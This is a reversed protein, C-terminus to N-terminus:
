QNAGSHKEETKLQNIKEKLEAIELEKMRITLKPDVEPHYTERILVHCEHYQGDKGKDMYIGYTRVFDGYRLKYTEGIDFMETVKM